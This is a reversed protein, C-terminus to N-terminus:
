ASLYNPRFLYVHTYAAFSSFLAIMCIHKMLQILAPNQPSFVSFLIIIIFLVVTSVKGAWLAGPLMKGRRLYYVGWFLQVTEKISFIILVNVMQTYRVCVCILMVFQTFKDAIPDLIKGLVTVCNLKRALYGDLFDSLCSIVLLICAISRQRFTEGSCFLITYVPLLLLRSFSILNPITLIKNCPNENPM